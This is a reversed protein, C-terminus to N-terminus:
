QPIFQMVGKEINGKGDNWEFYYVEKGEKIKGPVSELFVRKSQDYVRMYAAEADSDTAKPQNTTTDNRYLMNMPRDKSAYVEIDPTQAPKLLHWSLFITLIGVAIGAAVQINQLGDPREMQQVTVSMEELAQIKEPNSVERRIKEFYNKRQQSFADQLQKKKQMSM